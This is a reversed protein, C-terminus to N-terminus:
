YIITIQQIFYMSDNDDYHYAEDYQFNCDTQFFTAEVDYQFNEDFQDFTALIIISVNNGNLEFNVCKSNTYQTLINNIYQQIMIYIYLGDDDHEL